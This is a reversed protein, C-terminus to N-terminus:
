LGGVQMEYANREKDMQWNALLKDLETYTLTKGQRHQTADLADGARKGDAEHRKTGDEKNISAAADIFKTVESVATEASLENPHAIRMIYNPTPTPAAPTEEAYEYDAGMLQAYHPLVFGQAASVMFALAALMILNLVPAM